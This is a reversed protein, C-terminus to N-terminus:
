HFRLSMGAWINGLLCYESVDVGGQCLMQCFGQETLCVNSLCADANHSIKSQWLLYAMSTRNTFSLLSPHKHVSSQLNSTWYSGATPMGKQLRLRLVFHLPPKYAPHLM